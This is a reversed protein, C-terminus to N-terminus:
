LTALAEAHTKCQILKGLDEWAFEFTSYRCQVKGDLAIEHTMEDQPYPLEKLAIVTYDQLTLCATPM